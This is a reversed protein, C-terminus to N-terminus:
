PVRKCNTEKIVFLSFLLGIGFCIPLIMLALQYNALSYVVSGSVLRHDWFSELLVGVLPQFFAGGLVVLMNNFGIAVGLNKSNYDRVVAFSLIAGAPGIGFCFLVFWLLFSNM